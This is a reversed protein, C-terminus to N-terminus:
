VGSQVNNADMDSSVATINSLNSHSGNVPADQNYMVANIQAMIGLALAEPGDGGLKYGIPYHLKHIGAELMTPNSLNMSIENILRETRYRPGLQGLYRYNDSHKLLIALRARDQSLSHSMLAVAANNSLELLTESDDLSLSMVVDAQPFRMRTAYQARSDIVTVHWDQLKAMTVLPMVDNGAGCILLRLQLQLRQVLWETTVKGNEVTVYEANKDSLKYEALEEVTNALISSLATKGQASISGLNRHEDLNIRMGTQLNDSNQSISDQHQYDNVRILTAVTIPQQTRRVNRITELLPTATTLREFLVHVRGNCGLGFNLEDFDAENLGGDLGSNLDNDLDSDLEDYIDSKTEKASAQTQGDDAYHIDDGTQYVQVNAGNRTLWFARKIIHPELCGGSIMGVSRGDECILMMAGARRYASGETRVVTALVADIGQQKAKIALKLIDAVQNM